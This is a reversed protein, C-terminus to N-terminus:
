IVDASPNASSRPSGAIVAVEHVLDRGLFAAAANALSHGLLALEAAWAGGEVRITLRGGELKIPESRAAIQAGVVDPWRTRLRGLALKRDWGRESVLGQLM